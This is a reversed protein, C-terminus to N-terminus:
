SATASRDSPPRCRCTAGAAAPRRVATVPPGAPPSTGPRPRGTLVIMSSASTRLVYSVPAMRTSARRPTSASIPSPSYTATIPGDPDPLDVSICM